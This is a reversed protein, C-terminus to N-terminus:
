KKIKEKKETKNKEEKDEEPTLKNLVRGEGELILLEQNVSNLQKELQNKSGVMQNFRNQLEEKAKNIDETKM